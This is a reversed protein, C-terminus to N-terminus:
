SIDSNPHLSHAPECLDHSCDCRPLHSHMLGEDSASPGDACALSSIRRHKVGVTTGCHPGGSKVVEFRGMAATSEPSSDRRDPGRSEVHCLHGVWPPHNGGEIASHGSEHTPLPM